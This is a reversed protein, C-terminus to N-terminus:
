KVIGGGGGGRQEEEGLNQEAQKAPVGVTRAEPHGRDRTIIKMGAQNETKGKVVEVSGHKM